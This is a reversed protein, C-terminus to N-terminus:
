SNCCGIMSERRLYLFLPRVCQNLMLEGHFLFVQSSYYYLISDQVDSNLFQFLFTSLRCSAPKTCGADQFCCLPLHDSQEACSSFCVRQDLKLSTLWTSRTLQGLIWSLFDTELCPPGVGVSFMCVWSWWWGWVSVHEAKEQLFYPFVVSMILTPDSLEGCVSCCDATKGGRLTVETLFFSGRLIHHTSEHM